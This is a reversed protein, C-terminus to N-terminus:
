LLVHMPVAVQIKSAGIDIDMLTMTLLRKTWRTTIGFGLISKCTYENLGEYEMSIIIIIINAEM